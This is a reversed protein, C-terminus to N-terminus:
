NLSCCISKSMKKVLIVGLKSKEANLVEIQPGVRHHTLCLIFHPPALGESERDCVEAPLTHSPLNQLTGGLPPCPPCVAGYPKLAQMEAKGIEDYAAAAAGTDSVEEM